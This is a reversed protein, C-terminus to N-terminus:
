TRNRETAAHVGQCVACRQNALISSARQEELETDNHFTRDCAVLVGAPNRGAPMHWWGMFGDAKPRVWPADDTM